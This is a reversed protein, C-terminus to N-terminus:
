AVRQDNSLRLEEEKMLQYNEVRPSELRHYRLKTWFDKIGINMAKSMDRPRIKKLIL